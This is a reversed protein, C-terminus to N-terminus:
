SLAAALTRKHNMRIRRMSFQKIRIGDPRIGVFTAGTRVNVTITSAALTRSNHHNTPDELALNM